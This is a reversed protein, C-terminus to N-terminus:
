FNASSAEHITDRERLWVPFHELTNMRYSPAPTGESNEYGTGVLLSPMGASNAAAIDAEGDGVMLSGSPSVGLERAAVLLMDPEPKRPMGTDGGIIVAFRELLGFHKVIERAFREPKNTVLAMSIGLSKAADIATVAGPMLSTQQVLRTAYVAHMSSTAQDLQVEGLPMDCAQHARAVLTRIGHGIMGRVSGISLPGLSRSALVKNISVALDAASDVLTGDLDFLVAKPMGRGIILSAPSLGSTMVDGRTGCAPKIPREVSQACTLM